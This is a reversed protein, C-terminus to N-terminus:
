MYTCCMLEVVVKVAAEMDEVCVRETKAHPNHQGCFINPTPIGAYSLLAGDTGGRIPTLLPTINAAEMAARARDVCVPHQDINEKMNNYQEKIVIEYTAGPFAACSKQACVTLFDRHQGVKELSFDRILLLIETKEENGVISMPHVFGQYHETTEPSPYSTLLTFFHGAIKTTNVMKGKAYGPHVNKGVFSVTAQRAYFNEYQLEGKTSGDLTYAYAVPVRDYPFFKTGQGIEEDPTFCVYVDGHEVDPYRHFYEIADLIVAIGAKDDAGLLTTGDTTILTKGIMDRLDPNDVVSIVQTVDKPLVIDDGQYNEHVIAKVNKGSVSPSTDMHAILAIPDTKKTTNAALKATVYGHDDLFVHELQLKECEQVLLTALEM